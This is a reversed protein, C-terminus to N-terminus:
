ARELIAIRWLGARERVTARFGQREVVELM